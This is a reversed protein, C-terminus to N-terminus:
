THVLEKKSSNLAVKSREQTIEIYKYNEDLLYIGTLTKNGDTAQKDHQAQM